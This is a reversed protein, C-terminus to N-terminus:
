VSSFLTLKSLPGLACASGHEHCVGLINNSSPDWRLREQVKLEDVQMIMGQIPESSIERPPYCSSLNSLLEAQMPFGASSRIPITKIKRKTQDISPTGLAHHAINAASQGGLKYLLYAQHFNAEKYGRPSYKRQAAKNIKELITFVSAGARQQVAM